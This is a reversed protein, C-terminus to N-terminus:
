LNYNEFIEHGILNQKNGSFAVLIAISLFLLLHLCNSKLGKREGKAM